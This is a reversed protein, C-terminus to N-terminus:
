KRVSYTKEEVLFRHTRIGLCYAFHVGFIGRISFWNRRVSGKRKRIGISIAVQHSLLHRNVGGREEREEGGGGGGRWCGGGTMGQMPHGRCRARAKGRVWM